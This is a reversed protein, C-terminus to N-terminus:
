GQPLTRNEAWMVWCSIRISTAAGKSTRPFGKIADRRAKGGPQARAATRHDREWDQEPPSSKRFYVAGFPFVPNPWAAQNAAAAQARLEAAVSALAFGGVVLTRALSKKM